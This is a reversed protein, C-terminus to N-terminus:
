SCGGCCGHYVHTNVLDVALPELEKPFNEPFVDISWPGTLANYDEDLGGGSSLCHSPFVLDEGDLVM